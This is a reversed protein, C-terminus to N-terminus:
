ATVPCAFGSPKVALVSCPIRPLLREATNGVLFGAIGARGITGMVLLEINNDTIFDAIATDAPATVVHVCPAKTLRYRRLQERIHQDAEARLKDVTAAWVSAPLVHDLEPADVSHIVHLEACHLEAMSCGLEMALDGVPRMDHAVLISRIEPTSQPQTIWVPCPCKRLLKIGTSGMLLGKILGQHRTGAIVLDHQNQLVRRILEL